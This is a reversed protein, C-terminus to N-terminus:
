EHGGGRTGKQITVMHPYPIEIGERDLLEKFRAQLLRKVKWNTTPKCEALIRIVVESAGLAHVGLVEPRKMIEEIENNDYIKKIEGDLLQIVKPVEEEYAISLDVVAISPSTSYNTVETILGNPLIYIEGTFGKIKTIRLGIQQVTGEFTGVKIYDGVAFQDEFIIFFGTIVDRVLNQAGFAVALGLVGAGALIPLINIFLSLILLLGIFTVTYHFVNKLLVRITNARRDDVQLHFGDRHLLVREIFSTGIKKSIKMGVLILLILIIKEAWTLWLDVNTFWDWVKVTTQDINKFTELFMM